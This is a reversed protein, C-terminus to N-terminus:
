LSKTKATLPDGDAVKSTENLTVQQFFVYNKVLENGLVLFYIIM